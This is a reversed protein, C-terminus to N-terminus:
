TSRACSSASSARGRRALSNEAAIPRRRSRAAAVTVLSAQASFPLHGAYRHTECDLLRRRASYCSRRTSRMVGCCRARRSLATVFAGGAASLASSGGYLVGPHGEMAVRAGALACGAAISGGRGGAAGGRRRARTRARAEGEERTGEGERPPGPAEAPPRRQASSQAASPPAVGREARHASGRGAEGGERRGGGGGGKRRRRPARAGGAGRFAAGGGGGRGRVAAERGRAHTATSAARASETVQASCPM